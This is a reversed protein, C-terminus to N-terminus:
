SLFLLLINLIYYINKILKILEFLFDFYMSEMSLESFAEKHMGLHLIM